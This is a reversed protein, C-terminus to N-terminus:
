RHDSKRGARGPRRVPVGYRHALRTVAQRSLGIREAVAALSLQQTLYLEIFGDRPLARAARALVSELRAEDSQYRPAPTCELLYRLVDIDCGFRMALDAFCRPNEVRILRHLEATDFNPPEVQLSASEAIVSDDALWQVPEDRIGQTRLFRQAHEDLSTILEACLLLPLDALKSRFEPSDLAWASASAPMCTVREYLWCRVLRIRVTRGPHVGVNSCMERWVADPLLDATPLRRRRAYDIPVCCGDLGDALEALLAATTSWRPSRQLRQLVRSVAHASIVSGLADTAEALTVHSGVLVTAVSLALRLQQYGVGACRVPLSFRSWMLAPISRARQSATRGHPRRPTLTETGYRLQDSPALFPSLASLQVAVLAASVGRGWGTTSARVAVGCERSAEVLWRLRQGAVRFNPQCLVSWAAAIAAASEIAQAHATVGTRRRVPAAARDWYADLVVDPLHRSLQDRGAYTLIRGGLAAFDAILVAASVLMDKYVGFHARGSALCEQVSRQARLAIHGEPLVLAQAATLDAACRTGGVQEGASSRRACHLPTPVHGLQISRIRQPQRCKPCFDALLCRHKSCAVSWRLRWLQYWRGGNEALCHPCFRSRGSQMWLLSTIAGSGTDLGGGVAAVASHLTMSAVVIRDVGTALEIAALQQTSLQALWGNTLAGRHQACDNLGVAECLDGWPAGMRFALAELWSDLAEGPLPAVRLPLSRLM